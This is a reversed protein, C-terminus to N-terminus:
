SSYTKGIKEKRERRKLSKQTPLSRGGGGVGAELSSQVISIVIQLSAIGCPGGKRTGVFM